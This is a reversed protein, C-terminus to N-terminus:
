SRRATAPPSSPPSSAAPAARTRAATTAVGAMARIGEIDRELDPSGITGHLHEIFEVYEERAKPPAKLLLPMVTLAPQGTRRNGTNSMISVLSEVREPHKAALTQAIMGGMSAGVVHAKEIGLHDLLGIADAAM